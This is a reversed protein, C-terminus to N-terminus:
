WRNVVQVIGKTAHCHASMPADKQAHSPALSRVFKVNKALRTAIWLM